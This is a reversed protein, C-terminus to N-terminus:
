SDFCSVTIALDKMDAFMQPGNNEKGALKFLFFGGIEKTFWAIM